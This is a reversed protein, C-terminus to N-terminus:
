SPPKLGTTVWNVLDLFNQAQVATPIACHGFTPYLRQLLNGTAGAALVKQYFATEAFAPIAPDWTNHLTIVPVRLDGTPTYYREVYNGASVDTTYRAVTANVFDVEPQLVSEPLLPNPVLSYTTTSNDFSMGHALDIGNAFFRSQLSLAGYLSAVLTQFATSTPNLPSGVPVYPLPTQALSAIVFLGTPDPQVVASVQALTLPPTPPDSLVTGPLAGPYLADFLVRVNGTYQTEMLVGGVMGCMVLAGDYQGPYTELLKLAPAGGASRSVLFSRSPLASLEATLIGRLQHVRIAADKVAMGNESWSSYAGAFGQAGLLDRLAPFPDDNLDVPADVNRVGHVYYVADGNWTRPIYLAYQAGPGVKGEVIRAWPGTAPETVSTTNFTAGPAPSTPGDPRSVSDASCAALAAFGILLPLTSRCRPQNSGLM